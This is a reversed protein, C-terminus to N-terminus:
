LIQHTHTAPFMKSGVMIKITSILGAKESMLGFLQFLLTTISTKGNTGTVGIVKVEKSPHEFYNSAMLALAEASDPVRIFTVKPNLVELDQDHIVVRAGLDIAKEVYEHGDTVTGKIAVFVDGNTIKRSDFHIQNIQFDIGGEITLLKVGTM